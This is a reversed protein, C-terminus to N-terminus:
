IYMSDSSPKSHSIHSDANFLDLDINLQINRLTCYNEISALLGVRLASEAVVPSYFQRRYLQDFSAMNVSSSNSNSNSNSNSQHIFADPGKINVTLPQTSELTNAVYSYQRAQDIDDSVLLYAQLPGSMDSSKPSFICSIGQQGLKINKLSLLSEDTVLALDFVAGILAMQDSDLSKYITKSHEPIINLASIKSQPDLLVKFGAQTNTPRSESHESDLFEYEDSSDDSSDYRNFSPEFEM